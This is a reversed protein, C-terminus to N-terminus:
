DTQLKNKFVDETPVNEHYSTMESTSISHAADFISIFDSMDKESIKQSLL